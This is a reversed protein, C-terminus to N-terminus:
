EWSDDIGEESNSIIEELPMRCLYGTKDDYTTIDSFAWILYGDDIYAGTTVLDNVDLLVQVAYTDGRELPYLMVSNRSHNKGTSAQTVIYGDYISLDYSDRGVIDRRTTDGTEINYITLSSPNAFRM